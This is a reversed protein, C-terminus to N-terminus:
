WEGSIAEPSTSKDRLVLELQLSSALNILQEVALRQPHLELASLRKQSLGLKSGVEAQTLKLARRRGRLHLGLQAPTQIIYDVNVEM